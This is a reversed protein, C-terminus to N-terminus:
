SLVISEDEADTVIVEAERTNEAIRDLVALDAELTDSVEAAREKIDEFIAIKDEAKQEVEQLMSIHEQVDDAISQLDM